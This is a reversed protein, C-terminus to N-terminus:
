RRFPATAARWALRPPRLWRHLPLLVGPLRLRQVDVPTVDTLSHWLFRARAASGRTTAVGWGLSARWAPDVARWRARVEAVLAEMDAGAADPSRAGFTLGCEAVLRLALEFALESGHARAAEKVAPLAGPHQAMLAAVCAVDDLASWGHKTAHLSLLLIADAPSPVLCDRGAVQLTRARAMVSEVSPFGAYRRAAFSWHVEVPLAAGDRRLEWAGRAAMAVEEERRQFGARSTWGAAGLADRARGRDAPMVVVDIDSFRRASPDAWAEVALAPGKWVLARIGASELLALVERLIPLAALADAAAARRHAVLRQAVEAPVRVGADGVARELLADVRHAVATEVLSSWASPDLDNLLTTRAGGVSCGIVALLRDILDPAAGPSPGAQGVM